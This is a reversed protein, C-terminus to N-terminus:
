LNGLVRKLYHEIAKKLRLDGPSPVCIEVLKLSLVGGSFALILFGNAIKKENKLTFKKPFKKDGIYTQM